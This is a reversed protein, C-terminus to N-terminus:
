NRKIKRLIKNISRFLSYLHYKGNQLPIDYTGTFIKESGGYSKKFQTFGYWPHNKDNSTTIGWFDFSKLGADQADLIMQVLISSGAGLKRHEYDAASHMYYRVGDYDYIMSAAIPIKTSKQEPDKVSPDLEVLYLSAFGQEVQAKLYDTSHPNFGDKKAVKALLSSLYEVDKPETSQRFSIGKKHGNRWLRMKEKEIGAQLDESSQTLDLIWTAAPEIDHVKKAGIKKMEETSFHTQPEIRVFIANQKKALNKLENLAAKLASKNKLIPGYPCFLYSGFPTSDLVALIEFNEGTLRFTKKGQSQQFKEWAKSQLFPLSM